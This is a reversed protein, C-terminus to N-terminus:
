CRRWRWPACSRAARSRLRRLLVFLLLPATFELLAAYRYTYFALAWALYATIWWALLARERDRWPQLRERRARAAAWLLVCALGAVLLLLFRIDRMGIEMLREYRGLASDVLPRVLDYASHVMYRPDRFNELSQYESRFFGNAFPFVPNGFRRALQWDWFGGTPLFGLLSGLSLLGLRKALSGSHWWVLAAAAVLALHYAAMTLKLGTAAGALVGAALALWSARAAGADGASGLVLVLALLAPISVLNDGFTTGLLSVAAPGLSGVM